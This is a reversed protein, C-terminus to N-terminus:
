RGPRVGVARPTHLVGGVVQDQYPERYVHAGFPFVNAPFTPSLSM